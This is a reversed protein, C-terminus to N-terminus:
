LGGARRCEELYSAAQPSHPFKEFCAAAEHFRGENMLSIGLCLHIPESAPYHAAGKQLAEISGKFERKQQLMAGLGLCARHDPALSLAKEYLKRATEQKQPIERIQSYDGHSFTMALRSYFDARAEPSLRKSLSVDRVFGPLNEYFASRLRKGFSVVSERSLGPDTEFYLLDEARAMWMDDPDPINRAFDDYLATGPFLALMYAIMGLPKIKKMLDVSDEISARSEGPSGYIFYARAMIGRELTMAFAKEVHSKRLNKNLKKRIRDCGSEIGYSIQVCGAKKMWDLIEGDVRDARSIAAWSIDLGQDVIKECVEIALNKKLTFNDDSVYFFTEGKERLTKLMDVFYAASHFRTKRRWLKPSACFACNEPCGRSLALHRFTFHAAPSPLSDLDDIFPAEGGYVIEGNRRGAVGPIDSASEPRNEQLRRVLESFAREGEGVVAFDIFSFRSLLFRWLFSAGPGGFVIRVHPLAERALAAADIAGWRNAHVVSFGMMDPRLARFKEKLAERSPKEGNLNLVRVEHGREKLLAGIYYLGMPPALIDEGSIRKDPFDPYILLINM